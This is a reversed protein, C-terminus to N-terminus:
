KKAGKKSDKGLHILHQYKKADKHEHKVWVHQDFADHLATMAYNIGHNLSEFFTAGCQKCFAGIEDGDDTAAFCALPTEYVNLSVLEEFDNQIEGDLVIADNLLTMVTM